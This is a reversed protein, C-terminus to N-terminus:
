CIEFCLNEMVRGTIEFSYIQRGVITEEFDTRIRKFQEEAALFDMSYCGREPFYNLLSDVAKNLKEHGEKYRYFEKFDGRFVVM